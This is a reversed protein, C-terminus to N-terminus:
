STGSVSTGCPESSLPTLDDPCDASFRCSHEGRAFVDILQASGWLQREASASRREHQHKPPQALGPMLRPWEQRSAVIVILIFAPWSCRYEGWCLHSPRVPHTRFAVSFQPRLLPMTQSPTRNNAIPKASTTGGPWTGLEVLVSSTMRGVPPTEVRGEQLAGSACPGRRFRTLNRTPSPRMASPPRHMANPLQRSPHERRVGRSCRDASRCADARGKCHGSSCQARTGCM